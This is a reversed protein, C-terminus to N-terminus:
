GSPTLCLRSRRLMVRARIVEAATSIWIPPMFVGYKEGCVAGRPLTDTLVQKVFLLAGLVGEFFTFSHDLGDFPVSRIDAGKTCQQQVYAATSWYSVQEDATGHFQLRQHRPVPVPRIRVNMLLSEERLVKSVVPIDLIAGGEFITNYDFTQTTM